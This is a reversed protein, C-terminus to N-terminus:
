SQYKTYCPVYQVYQAEPHLLIFTGITFLLSPLFPTFFYLYFSICFCPLFSHFSSPLCNVYDVSFLSSGLTNAAVRCKEVAIDLPDGQIEPLDVQFSLCAATYILSFGKNEKGLIYISTM